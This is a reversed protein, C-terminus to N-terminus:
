VFLDFCYNVYQSANWHQQWMLFNMSRPLIIIIYECFTHVNPFLLADFYMYNVLFGPFDIM